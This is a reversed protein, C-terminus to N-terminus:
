IQTSGLFDRLWQYVRVIPSAASETVAAQKAAVSEQAVGFEGETKGDLLWGTNDTYHFEQVGVFGRSTNIFQLEEAECIGKCTVLVYRMASGSADRAWASVDEQSLSIADIAFYNQLVDGPYELVGVTSYRPITHSADRGFDYKWSQKTVQMHKLGGIGVSWVVQLGFLLCAMLVSRRTISTFWMGLTLALFPVLYYLFYSHGWVTAPLVVISVTGIIVLVAGVAHLLTTRSGRLFKRVWFWVGFLVLPSGYLIIRIGTVLLLRVPWYSLSTLESTLGRASYGEWFAGINGTLVLVFAYMGLGLTEGAMYALFAPWIRKGTRAVLLYLFGFGLYGGYWDTAGGLFAAVAVGVLQSRTNTKWYRVSFYLTVLTFFLSAQEFMMFKWFFSVMPLLAAFVVTWRAIQRNAIESVLAYLAILSGVVFMFPAVHVVWHASGLVAFPLAELLFFLTPHHLYYPVQAPLSSGVFYTPLFSLAPFGFQLFNKSALALYNNNANYLGVYPLNIGWLGVLFGFVIAVVWLIDCAIKKNM